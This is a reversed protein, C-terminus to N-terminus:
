KELGITPIEERNKIQDKRYLRHINNLKKIFQSIDFYYDLMIGRLEKTISIRIYTQGTQFDQM